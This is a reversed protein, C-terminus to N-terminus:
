VINNRVEENQVKKYVSVLGFLGILLGIGLNELLIPGLDPDTYVVIYNELILSGQNVVIVYSALFVNTFLIGLLTVIVIILKTKNTVKGGFKKYFFFASYGILAALIGAYFSTYLALLIWPISGILAGIVAGVTGELYKNEKQDYKAMESSQDQKAKELCLDHAPLLIHNIKTTATAGEEGCFACKNYPMVNENQLGEVITDLALIMKEGSLGKFAEFIHAEVLQDNFFFQFNPLEKKREKFFLRLNTVQNQNLTECPIFLAKYNDATNMYNLHQELTITYGKFTGYAIKKGETIFGIEHALKEVTAM